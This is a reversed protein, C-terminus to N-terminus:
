NQRRRIQRTVENLITRKHPHIVQRQAVCKARHARRVRQTEDFSGADEPSNLVHERARLVGADIWRCTDIANVIVQVRARSREDGAKRESKSGAANRARRPRDSRGSLSFPSVYINLSVVFDSAVAATRSATLMAHPLRVTSGFLEIVLALMKLSGADYLDNRTM